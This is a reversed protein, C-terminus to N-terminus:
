KMGLKKMGKSDCAILRKSGTPSADARTDTDLAKLMSLEKLLILMEESEQGM